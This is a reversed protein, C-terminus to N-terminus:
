WLRARVWFEVEVEWRLGVRVLVKRVLSKWFLSRRVLLRRFLSKRVLSRRGCIHVAVTGLTELKIWCHLALVLNSWMYAFENGLSRFQVACDCFTTWQKGCVAASRCLLKLANLILCLNIFIVNWFEWITTYLWRTAGYNKWGCNKCAFISFVLRFLSLNKIENKFADSCTFTM